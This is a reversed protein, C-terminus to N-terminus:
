LVQQGFHKLKPKRQGFPRAGNAAKLIVLGETPTSELAKWAMEM